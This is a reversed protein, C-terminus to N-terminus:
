SCPPDRSWRPDNGSNSRPICRRLGAVTAARRGRLREVGLQGARDLRDRADLSEADLRRVRSGCSRSLTRPSEINRQGDDARLCSASASVHRVRVPRAGMAEPSSGHQSRRRRSRETGRDSSPRAPGRERAVLLPEDTGKERVRGRDRGPAPSAGPRGPAERGSPPLPAEGSLKPEPASDIYPTHREAWTAPSAM